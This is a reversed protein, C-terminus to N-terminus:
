YVATFNIVVSTAQAGLVCANPRWASIKDDSIGNDPIVIVNCDLLFQNYEPLWKGAGFPCTTGPSGFYIFANDADREGECLYIPDGDIRATLLDPLHYLVKQPGINWIWGGNGNPRRVKFDKPMYRVVQYLLVGDYDCYDYACVETLRHLEHGNLVNALDELQVASDLNDVGEVEM